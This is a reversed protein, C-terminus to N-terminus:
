VTSDYESTLLAAFAVNDIVMQEVLTYVLKRKV